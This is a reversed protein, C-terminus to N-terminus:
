PGVAQSSGLVEEVLTLEAELRILLELGRHLDRDSELLELEACLAAAAVAGINAAAGRLAHAAQKLGAGGGSDVAQRLVTLRGPLDRLFAESMAPLLGSGDDPGLGRLIGLREPDLSVPRTQSSLPYPVWRDLLAALEAADVPKPLYDDMGAALCRQRDGDLAGATMALIPIRPAGSDRRRILKTAEYGDMVPMHCDMLVAVYDTDATAAVAEAGDAAQDVEFGLGTLMGHAVLQNVENDEAVLVRGRVPSAPAYSSPEAVTAADPIAVPPSTFLRVLRNYFESSRVPKMLWEHVGAASLEDKDIRMTSTLMIKRMPALAPDAAIARALELGNMGPMCLDLVVIEYPEGADAAAHALRLAAQGDPAMDPRLRWSRLQSELVLRNTTNDDVVLVRLGTLVEPPPVPTEARQAVSLPISFWFTSGDGPASKLGITGGMAETLRSCIALGLGTGGYRRTTSADAQMFSQFLRAQDGPDIGIGTDRVECTIMVTGSGHEAATARIAVEGSDTFKVANSALNLLVQRVRGADGILRAPVEPTCYATLELRKAQASEALLGAVDEILLRLDFPRMDLDVKGAELKSYDLIDNILAVLAEGAGKIGEAYQRQTEDLPSQLL